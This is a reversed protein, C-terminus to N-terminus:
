KGPSEPINENAEDLKESRIWRRGYIWLTIAIGFYFGWYFLQGIVKGIQYSDLSGTFIYFFGFIAQLLSSLMGVSVLILIISVIIFIYGFLKKTRM